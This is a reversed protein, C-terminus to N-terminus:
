PVINYWDGCGPYPPSPLGCQFEGSTWSYTPDISEDHGTLCAYPGTQPACGEYGVFIQVCSPDADCALACSAYADQFSAFSLQLDITEYNIPVCGTTYSQVLTFAPLTTSTSSTTSSSSSTSSTSTTVPTL